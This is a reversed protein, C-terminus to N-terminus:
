VFSSFFSSYRKATFMSAYKNLMKVECNKVVGKQTKTVSEKM